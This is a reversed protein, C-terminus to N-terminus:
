SGQAAFYITLDCVDTGTAAKATVRAYRDTRTCRYVATGGAALTPMGSAALDEGFWPGDASPGFELDADALGKKGTGGACSAVLVRNPLDKLDTTPLIQTVDTGLALKIVRQELWPM